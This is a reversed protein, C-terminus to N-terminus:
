MHMAFHLNARSRIRSEWRFSADTGIKRTRSNDFPSQIICVSVRVITPQFNTLVPSVIISTHKRCTSPPAIKTHLPLASAFSRYSFISTFPSTGLFSHKRLSFDRSPILFQNKSQRHNTSLTLLEELRTSIHPSTMFCLLATTTLMNRYREMGEFGRFWKVPQFSPKKSARSVERHM